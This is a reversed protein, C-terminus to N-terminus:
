REANGGGSIADRVFLLAMGGLAQSVASALTYEQTLYGAVAVLVATLATWNSKSALFQRLTQKFGLIRKDMM